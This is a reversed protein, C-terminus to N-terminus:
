AADQAVKILNDHRRMTVNIQKGTKLRYQVSFLKDNRNDNLEM